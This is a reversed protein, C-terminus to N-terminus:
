KIKEEIKLAYKHIIELIDRVMNEDIGLEKAVQSRTELVQQWREPALPAIGNEKKLEGVKQVVQMRHQLVEILRRDIIDIEDRLEKLNKM